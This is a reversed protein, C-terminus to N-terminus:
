RHRKALSKEKDRAASLSMYVFKEGRKVKIAKKGNIVWVTRMRGLVHVPNSKKIKPKTNKKAKRSGGKFDEEEENNEFGKSLKINYYGNPTKPRKENYAAILRKQEEIKDDEKKIEEINKEVVCEDLDDDCAAYEDCQKPSDPMLSWQIVNPATEYKRYKCTVSM